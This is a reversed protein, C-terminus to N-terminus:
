RWTHLILCVVILSSVLSLVEMVSELKSHCSMEAFGFNDGKARANTDNHLAQLILDTISCVRSATINTCRSVQMIFM